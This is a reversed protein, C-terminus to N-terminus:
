VYATTSLKRMTLNVDTTVPVNSIMKDQDFDYVFLEHQMGAVQQEDIATIMGVGHAPYVIAEGTKFGQRASSKKQQTTMRRVFERNRVRIHWRPRTLCARILRPFVTPTVRYQDSWRARFFLEM